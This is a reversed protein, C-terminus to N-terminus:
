LIETEFIKKTVAAENSQPGGGGASAVTGGASGNQRGSSGAKAGTSGTGSNPNNALNKLSGHVTSSVPVRGVRSMQVNGLSVNGGGAGASGVGGGAAGASAAAISMTAAKAALNSESGTKKLDNLFGRPIQGRSLQQLRTYQEQLQRQKRLLEQHRQELLEQRSQAFRKEMLAATAAATNGCKAALM